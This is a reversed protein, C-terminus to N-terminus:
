GFFRKSGIIIIFSYNNKVRFNLNLHFLLLFFLEISFSGKTLKKPRPEKGKSVNEKRCEIARMEIPSINSLLLLNGLLVTRKMLKSRRRKIGAGNTFKLSPFAQLKPWGLLQTRIGIKKAQLSSNSCKSKHQVKGRGRRASMMQSDRHIRIAQSSNRSSVIM